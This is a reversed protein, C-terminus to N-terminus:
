QASQEQTFFCIMYILRTHTTEATGDTLIRNCSMLPQKKLDIFSVAFGFGCADAM